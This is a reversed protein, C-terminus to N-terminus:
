AKFHARMQWSRALLLGVFHVGVWSDWTPSALVRTGPYGRGASSPVLRSCDPVPFVHDPWTTAGKRSTFSPGVVKWFHRIDIPLIPINWKANRKLVTSHLLFTFNKVLFNPPDLYPFPDWIRCMASYKCLCFIGDVTYTQLCVNGTSHKCEDIPFAAATHWIYIHTM